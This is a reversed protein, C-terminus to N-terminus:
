EDGNDLIRLFGIDDSFDYLVQSDFAAQKIKGRISEFGSRLIEGESSKVMLDDLIYDVLISADNLAHYRDVKKKSTDKYDILYLKISKFITDLQSM